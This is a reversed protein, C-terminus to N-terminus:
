IQPGILTPSQSQETTNDAQTATTQVDSNPLPQVEGDFLGKAKESRILKMLYDMATKQQKKKQENLLANRKAVKKRHEKTKKGM